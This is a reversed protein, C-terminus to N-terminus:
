LQRGIVMFYVIINLGISTIYDRPMGGGVEGFGGGRSGKGMRFLSNSVRGRTLKFKWSSEFDEYRFSNNFFILTM